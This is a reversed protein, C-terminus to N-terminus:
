EWHGELAKGEILGEFGMEKLVKKAENGDTQKEIDHELEQEEADLEKKAKKSTDQEPTHKSAILLLEAGPYDLLAPPDAPIFKTKFLKHLEDPYKPQKSKPKDRVAPNTSPAEPNKVQLTFGGEEHIHLAHQVEGLQHPMALEYILYTHYVASANQSDKPYNEAAHLVYAGAGAVRAGPQHRTGLTKTEYTYAGLGDKLAKLDEGVNLVEGWIPRTSESAEPLAKKGVAILRHFKTGYPVLLIHFKSVDDLSEPHDVEVKPRFLFYIFGKELIGHKREPDPNPEHKPVQGEEANGEVAEGGGEEEEKKTATSSSSEQPPPPAPTEEEEKATAPSTTGGKDKDKDKDKGEDEDDSKVGPPMQVVKKEHHRHHHAPAPEEKHADSSSSSAKHRKPSADDHQSEAAPRKEGATAAQHASEDQSRTTVM